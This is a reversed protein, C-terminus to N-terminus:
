FRFSLWSPYFFPCTTKSVGTLEHVAKIGGYGVGEAEKQWISGRKNKM